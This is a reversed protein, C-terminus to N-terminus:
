EGEALRRMEPQPTAPRMDDPMASAVGPAVLQDPRPPIMGLQRALPDIREPRILHSREAKLVAIDSKAKEAAREQSQVHTELRRTAYSLGYLMFASAITMCLAAINLLRM